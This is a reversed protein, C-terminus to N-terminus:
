SGLPRGRFHRILRKKRARLGLPAAALAPPEGRIM